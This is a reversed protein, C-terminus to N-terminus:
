EGGKLNFIFDGLNKVAYPKSLRQVAAKIENQRPKNNFFLELASSLSYNKSVTLGAGNNVLFEVNRDEQGPIPDIYIMPLKKALSETVSLGGPKTVMCDAADMFLDVNNVFGHVSLNISNRRNNLTDAAKSNNGCCVAANCDIDAAEIEEIISVINGYGMSGMMVFVLPRDDFGLQKKAESKDRVLSFKLDVPIGFPLIKEKAIGRKQTVSILSEDAVVYYDMDTTEWKPHLTYDTVIGINVTNIEDKILTIIQASFVHTCVVVDIDNELIFKKIKHKITSNFKAIVNVFHGNEFEEKDYLKGYLKPTKGSAFLYIESVAKSFMPHIYGYVDLFFTKAGRQKVYNEMARASTTHGGGTSVSLYLINM